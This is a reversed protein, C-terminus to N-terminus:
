RGGYGSLEELKRIREELDVQSFVALLEHSAYIITRASPVDIEKRRLQNIISVLLRRVDSAAKISINGPPTKVIGGTDKDKGTKEDKNEQPGDRYIKM